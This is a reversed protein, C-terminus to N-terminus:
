TLMQQLLRTLGSAESFALATFSVACDRTDALGDAAEYGTLSRSRSFGVDVVVAEDDAVELVGIEAEVAESMVTVVEVALEESVATEETLWDRDM